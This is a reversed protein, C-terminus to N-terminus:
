GCSPDHSCWVSRVMFRLTLLTWSTVLTSSICAAWENVHSWFPRVRECYYFAHLATEELGSGCQPCDPMDITCVRYAWDNLTLANRALRWTLSLKSNHLFSSVPAWNSQSHTEELSWRYKDGTGSGPRTHCLAKKLHTWACPWLGSSGPM